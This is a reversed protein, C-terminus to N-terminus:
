PSACGAAGTTKAARGSHFIDFENHPYSVKKGILSFNRGGDSVGKLIGEEM